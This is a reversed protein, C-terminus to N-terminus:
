RCPDSRYAREIVENTRLGIEGSIRPPRGTQLAETFDGILPAHFNEHPPLSETRSGDATVIQVESGNLDEITVRGETGILELRDPTNVTGFYCQLIGHAGGEFQMSLTAAQEAEYSDSDIFQADVRTVEGFLMEFLDLRHSGIDMLPGGGGQAKVVRWDDAPFRNSNGTVALVSLPRGLTGSALLDRLRIVSPYFRRYYAVGLQVNAESCADVMERCEATSLAMPKEVLVHKGAKAASVTQERHLYVPTAVYIADLDERAVLEEASTTQNPISFKATFESLKEEDRRCAAILESHSDSRIAQAVRKTAIDGCGLLGWRITM